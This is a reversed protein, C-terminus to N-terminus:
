RLRTGYVASWCRALINWVAMRGLGWCCAPGVDGGWLGGLKRVGVSGLGVGCCGFRDADGCCWRRAGLVADLVAGAGLGGRRWGSCRWACVGRGPTCFMSLGAACPPTRGTCVQCVSGFGRRSARNSGHQTPRSQRVTHNAPYPFHPTPPLRTRVSSHAPHPSRDSLISRTLGTRCLCGTVM